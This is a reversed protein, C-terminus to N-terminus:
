PTISPATRAAGSNTSPLSPPTNSNATIRAERMFRAVMEKSHRAVGPTSGEDLDPLLEKLAIDRGLHEDHVLLVKGMGDKGHDGVHTYRGISEDLVEIDLPEDAYGPNSPSPTTEDTATIGISNTAMGQKILCKPCLVAPADNPLESGCDPCKKSNTM